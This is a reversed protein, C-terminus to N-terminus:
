ILEARLQETSIIANQFAALIVLEEKSWKNFEAKNLDYIMKVAASFSTPTVKIDRMRLFTQCVDSIIKEAKDTVIEEQSRQAQKTAVKQAIENAAEATIQQIANKNRWKDETSIEPKM